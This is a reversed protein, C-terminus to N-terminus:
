WYAGTGKYILERTNNRLCEVDLLARAM